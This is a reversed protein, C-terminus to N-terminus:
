FKCFYVYRSINIFLMMLTLSLVGWVIGIGFGHKFLYYGCFCVCFVLWSKISYKIRSKFHTKYKKDKIMWYFHTLYTSIFLIVSILICVIVVPLIADGLTNNKGAESGCAFALLILMAIIGTIYRAIKNIIPKM